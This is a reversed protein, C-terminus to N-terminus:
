APYSVVNLGALPGGAQQALSGTDIDGMDLPQFGFESLLGAVVSKSQEDDGAIFALRHGLGVVPEADVWKEFYHNLAKVLSVNPFHAQVIRSSAKGHLDDLRMDPLFQNTVDVLIKGSLDPLSKSVTPITSWPVTLFLVEAEALDALEAPVALEGLQIAKQQLSAPGRSNTLLVTHGARILKHTIAEGLKGFGIIATRM